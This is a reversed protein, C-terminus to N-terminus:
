GRCHILLKRLLLHNWKKGIGCNDMITDLTEKLEAQSEYVTSKIANAENDMNELVEKTREHNQDM